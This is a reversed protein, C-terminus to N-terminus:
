SGAMRSVRDLHARVRELDEPTDVGPVAEVVPYSQMTEGAELIRLQELGEIKELRSPPLAAWRELGARRYLYVGVHIWFPGPLAPSAHFSLRAEEGCGGAEGVEAEGGLMSGGPDWASRPFPVPARSFYLCRGHRDVVVKVVNPDWLDRSDALAARLTGFEVDDSRFRRLAEAVGESDLLPEDGQVNVIIDAPYREAALVVRDTGSPLESPTDVVVAGAEEAAEAIRADDTAVVIMELETIEVCREVVHQIIPRGALSALAKGPFRVSGFRAPIIAICHM